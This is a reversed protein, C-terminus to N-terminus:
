KVIVKFVEGDVRVIYIGAPVELSGQLMGSISYVEANEYEGEIVIRGVEGRVNCKASDAITNEIKTLDNTGIVAYANAGLTITKEAVNLTPTVNYSSSLIKYKDADTSNLPLSSVTAEATVSTNIVLLLEQDNYELKLYRPNARAALSIDVTANKSFINPNNKRIAILERYSQYLGARDADDLYSWIVKKPSTDNGESNKTTQDAGLEGFQWIMHAGPTLLMQAALSGLRRMAMEHNDKIGTLGSNQQVYAVREEDHSEIYSVTSGWTRSGNNPAYFTTLDAKNGKAFTCSAGNINSWNMQGDAAMANEESASALNENIHYANPKIEKIAAHLRKMRNIRSQNYKETDGGYSSNDGLGKVLDFRFGDVNYATLWYQLMDVWQQEVIPNDQNWDNLVSYAHPASANYFPNSEIPYMQYWPHNGDSQNFVVDLIVAMGLEHCRDIFEKYDDPTGYWKDPAFYFNTNYGWSNNGNFEQIPMLEIANVGLSSLYDLKEMALKVTGRGQARVESGTFDRFLLEYIILNEPDPLEFDTVKWDYNDMNGKYVALFTNDPVLGTPYAILGPFTTGTIHTSKDNYQDLVLKAYPDGVNYTGDVNYYYLYETNPDLDSITTWFYRYGNYDQYNMIANADDAYNNWSGIIKVISKLPAALCFTVSGDANEVAGMKPTGGPYDVKEPSIPVYYLSLTETYITGNITVNATITYSMDKTPFTYTASLETSTKSTITTGNILLEIDAEVPTTITYTRTNTNDTILKDEIDTTFTLYRNVNVLIDSENSDKGTQSADSSRFVFALKTVTETSGVGYFSTISGPISFQYIDTDIRTCKYKEDNDGWTPAHKWDSDSSSETTIVGTHAYVDGTYGKLGQSGKTAYFTVVINESDQMIVTPSTTVVQASAKITIFAIMGILLPLIKKM